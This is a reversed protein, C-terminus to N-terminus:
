CVKAIVEIIIIIISGTGAGTGTNVTCAVTHSGETAFSYPMVSDTAGPVNVGDVTWQYTVCPFAFSCEPQPREGGNGSWSAYFQLGGGECHIGYAEQVNVTIVALVRPSAILCYFVVILRFISTARRNM